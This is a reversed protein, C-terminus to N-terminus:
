VVNEDSNQIKFESKREKKEIYNVKITKSFACNIVIKERKNWYEKRKLKFNDFRNQLIENTSLIKM